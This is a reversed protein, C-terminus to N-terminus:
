NEQKEMDPLQILKTTTTNTNFFDLMRGAQGHLAGVGIIVTCGTFTLVSLIRM